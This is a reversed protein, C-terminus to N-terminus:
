GLPVGKWPASQTVQRSGIKKFSLRGSFLSATQEFNSVVLRGRLEQTWLNLSRDGNQEAGSENLASVGTRHASKFM